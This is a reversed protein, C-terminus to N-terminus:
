FLESQTPPTELAFAPPKEYDHSPEEDKQGILFDVAKQAKSAARWLQSKDKGLATLWSNLYKAHDERPQNTIGYDCCIFAAGIEAILEEFAYVEDGWEQHHPRNIRTEHGTWHIMEHLLTGYLAEDATSSTSGKFRARKPMAVLDTLFNYYAGDGGFSIAMRQEEILEHIAPLTIENGADLGEFLDPHDPNFNSVQNGNFVWFPRFYALHEDGKLDKRFFPYFLTVAKEGALVKSRRSNWQRLTGWVSNSYSKEAQKLMLALKNFGRYVKGSAVNTPNGQKGLKHWPMEWRDDTTAMQDIVNSLVEDQGKTLRPPKDNTTQSM